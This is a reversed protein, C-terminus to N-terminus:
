TENEENEKVYMTKITVDISYDPFMFCLSELDKLLASYTYYIQSQYGEFEFCYCKM